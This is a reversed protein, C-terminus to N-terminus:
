WYDANSTFPPKGEEQPLVTRTLLCPMLLGQRARTKSTSRVQAPPPPCGSAGSGGPAEPSAWLHRRPEVKHQAAPGARCLAKPHDQPQRTSATRGPLLLALPAASPSVPGPVFRAARRWGESPPASCPGSGDAEERPSGARRTGHPAQHELVAPRAPEAPFCLESDSSYDGPQFRRSGPPTTGQGAKGPGSCSTAPAPHRSSGKASRTRAAASGVCRSLSLGALTQARKFAASAELAVATAVHSEKGQQPLSPLAFSKWAM